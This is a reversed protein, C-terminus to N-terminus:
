HLDVVEPIHAERQDQIEELKKKNNYRELRGHSTEKKSASPIQVADFRRMVM